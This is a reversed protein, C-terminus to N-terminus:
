RLVMRLCRLFGRLLSCLLLLRLSSLDFGWLTLSLRLRLLSRLPASPPAPAVPRHFFPLAAGSFSSALSSSSSPVSFSPPLSSSVLPSPEPAAPVQVPPSASSLASLFRSSVSFDLRYDAYLHPFHASLYALFDKGGSAFYWRGLDQYEASLGLM